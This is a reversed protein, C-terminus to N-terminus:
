KSGTGTENEVRKLWEAVLAEFLEPQEIQLNHGAMDLIAYSARGYDQMIELVDEYGTITDQRGALFLSPKNFKKQRIVKDVDFSFEYNKRLEKIFERDSVKMGEAIEREFRRYASETAAVAISLFDNKSKSEFSKFFDRENKRIRIEENKEPLKRSRMHPIIVPCILLLGDINHIFKSLIGRSIYGGYSEGAILFSENLNEEIFLSLIKLIEDSSAKNLSVKSKGMGPLDVYIRRYGGCKSFVPEMCGEMLRHDCGLGHILLIAKGKGKEIYHLKEGGKEYYM